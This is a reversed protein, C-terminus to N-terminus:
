NKPEHVKGQLLPVEKETENPKILTKFCFVAGKDPNNEAWIKGGIFRHLM